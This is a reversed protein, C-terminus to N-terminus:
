FQTYLVTDFLVDLVSIYNAIITKTTLFACTLIDTNTLCDYCSNEFIYTGVNYFVAEGLVNRLVKHSM